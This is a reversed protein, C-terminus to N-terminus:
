LQEVPLLISFTTGVGEQSTAAIHGNHSEIIGYSISLGLGSGDEKTTFFPEFIRSLTEPPMGRGTDSFKIRVASLARQGRSAQMQDPATSIRLTGGAPMADIANLVLNLFVQKLHDPNIQIMPLERAWQREVAVDSHQLQKGALELVSELVVHPHTPQLREHEPRYFDRMRSVITSIREMESRVISLYQRLKTQRQRDDIEEGLLTLCNQVSQLPNNIEHAVSASLRGLAAMKESHLLQSQLRVRESVDRLVGRNMILKGTDDLVPRVSAEIHLPSGDRHLARFMLTFQERGEEQMQRIRNRIEDVDDPHMPLEYVNRELLEEPTYGTLNEIQPSWYTFRDEANTEYVIDPVNEVYTRYREESEKLREYLRANEIAIAAQSALTVLMTENDRNFAGVEKSNVSLTGIVKEGILLPAVMLSRFDAGQDLYRPDERTDPVYISRKEQSVLGAIGEGISMSAKTLPDSETDSPIRPVLLQRKEDLLHIVTGDATPIVERCTRVISGLLETLELQRTIALTTKRLAEMEFMRRMEEDYLSANEVAIAIQSGVFTLLEVDQATFKHPRRSAVALLGLTKDRAKLPVAASSHLREKQITERLYDARPDQLLNEVLTPKGRAALAEAMRKRVAPTRLGQASEDSLGRYVASVTDVTEVDLLTIGGVELGLVDLVRDLAQNMIDDLDLSRAVTSAIDNLAALEENRRRLQNEAQLEVPSGKQRSRNDVAMIKVGEM